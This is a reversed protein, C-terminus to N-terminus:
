PLDSLVNGHNPGRLGVLMVRRAVTARTEPCMFLSTPESNAGLMAPSIRDEIDGISDSNGNANAHVDISHNSINDSGGLNNHSKNAIDDHGYDSAHGSLDSHGHNDTDSHGHSSLDGDHGGLDVDGGSGAPTMGPDDDDDHSGLDIDGDLGDTTMDPDDDDDDVDHSGFDIDGGLDFDSGQYSSSDNGRMDM